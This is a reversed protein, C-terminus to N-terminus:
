NEVEQLHALQKAFMPLVTAGPLFQAVFYSFVFGSIKPLTAFPLLVTYTQVSVADV